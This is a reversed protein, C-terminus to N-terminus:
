VSEAYEITFTTVLRFYTANDDIILYQIEDSSSYHCNFGGGINTEAEFAKILSMEKELLAIAQTQVGAADFETKAVESVLMVVFDREISLCPGIERRTNVASSFGLGYGDALLISPNSEIEYPNPLKNATTLTAVILTDLAAAIDTIKTTM